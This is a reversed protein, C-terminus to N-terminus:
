FAAIGNPSGLGVPGSYGTGATCLYSPSCNGNDGGIIANLASRHSYLTSAGTISSGNAALAYVGAVIPTAVSTGGMQIWGSDEYSDYVAVPTSPDGVAAVDAITRKACGTDTQWSPKAAVASCGSGTGGWASETWGRATAPSRTLTTAGVAVVDTSAAPWNATTYGQDGAAAVITVGPHSWSSTKETGSEPIVYSNSIVNAGNLVAVSIAFQLDVENTSKAEVVLLKCKPCMASTMDVDISLEHSWNVDAQTLIEAPIIRLCGSAITCAPLGFTSRYVALDAALNPDNNVIVIGITQGAGATASPTNYASQLDAPHLGPIQAVPTTPGLATGAVEINSCNGVGTASGTSSCEAAFARANTSNRRASGPPLASAAAVSQAAASSGSTAPLQTASGGGSCAPLAFVALVAIKQAVKTSFV